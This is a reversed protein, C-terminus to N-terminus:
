EIIKDWANIHCDDANVCCEDDCQKNTRPCIYWKTKQNEIQEPQHVLHQIEDIQEITSKKTKNNM